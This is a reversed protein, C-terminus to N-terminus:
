AMMAAFKELILVKFLASLIVALYVANASLSAVCPFHVALM